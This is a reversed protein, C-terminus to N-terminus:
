AFYRQYGGPNRSAAPGSLRPEVTARRQARGRGRRPPRLARHPVPWEFIVLVVTRLYAARALSRHRDVAHRPCAAPAPALGGAPRRAATAACPWRGDAGAAVVLGGHWPLCFAHIRPAAGAHRAAS